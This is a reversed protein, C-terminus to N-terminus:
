VIAGNGYLYDDTFYKGLFDMMNDSFVKDAIEEPSFGLMLDSLEEASFPQQSPLSLVRFKKMYPKENLRLAKAIRLKFDDLREATNYHDFPDVIGDNDTGLCITKWAQTEPISAIPNETNLRRIHQLNVKLIHFINTLFMQAHLRKVAEDTVLKRSNEKLLKKFKGGPMRGDHMCVGIVGDTDFIERIDEDTINIDWRSVYSNKDYRNRDPIERAKQRTPIGNVATHSCIIPVPDGAEHFSRIIEIFDDRTNLSMHKTDVLIRPGNGRSLLHEKILEKGFDTIGKDLGNRQDFVDSFGPVIFNKADAFSKAHGSILNNFHHSFTIFFPPFEFESADKLRNINGIFSQKLKKQNEPALTDISEANFLDNNRYKALAHMGEATLIGFVERNNSNKSYEEFNKILRFSPKITFDASNSFTLHSEKLYNYEGVYDNDFYDIAEEDYIENIYTAARAQSFGTLLQIIKNDVDRKLTKGFILRLLARQVTSASSFPRSPKLFPREPPYITAFVVRNDGKYCSELNSQTYTAMHKVIGGVLLKRFSFKGFLRKAEKNEYAEWINPIADNGNPKLSPHCHLDVIPKRM